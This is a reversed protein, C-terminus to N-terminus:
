AGRMAKLKSIMAAISNVADQHRRDMTLLEHEAEDALRQMEGRFYNTREIRAKEYDAQTTILRAQTARLLKDAAQLLRQGDQPEPPAAQGATEVAQQLKRTDHEM